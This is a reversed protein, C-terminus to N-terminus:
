SCSNIRTFDLLIHAAELSAEPSAMSVASQVPTSERRAKEKAGQTPSVRQQYESTVFTSRNYLMARVDSAESKAVQKLVGNDFQLSHFTLNRKGRSNSIPHDSEESSTSPDSLPLSMSRATYRTGDRLDNDSKDVSPRKAAPELSPKVAIGPASPAPVQHPPFHQIIKQAKFHHNPILGYSEIWAKDGSASARRAGLAFPSMEPAKPAIHRHGNMMTPIPRRVSQHAVPHTTYQKQRHTGNSDEFGSVMTWSKATKITFSSMLNDIGKATRPEGSAKSAATAAGSNDSKLM